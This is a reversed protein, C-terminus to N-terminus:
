KPQWLEGEIRDSVAETDLAPTPLSPTGESHASLGHELDCEVVAVGVYSAAPVTQFGRMAAMMVWSVTVFPLFLVPVGLPQFITVAAASTVASLLAGALAYGWGRAELFIFLGGLFLTTLAANSGYVGSRVMANPAGFVLGCVTALFCGGTALLASTRSNLAIAFIILLGPLLGQQFFIQAISNVTGDLITLLVSGTPAPTAEHSLTPTAVATFQQLSALFVWTAVCFPLSLVPLKRRHLLGGLGGVMVTCTAAALAIWLWQLLGPLGFGVPNDKTFAVLAAGALAGNLGLIGSDQVRRGPKLAMGTLMSVASGFLCALGAAWSNLFVALVILLGSGWNRQFVVGGISSLAQKAFDLISFYEFSRDPTVADSPLESSEYESATRMHHRRSPQVCHRKALVIRSNQPIGFLFHVRESRSHSLSARNMARTRKKLFIVPKVRSNKYRDISM